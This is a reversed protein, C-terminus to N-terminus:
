RRARAPSESRILLCKAMPSRLPTRTLSAVVKSVALRDQRKIQHLLALALYQVSQNDSSLATNVENVWRRVVV